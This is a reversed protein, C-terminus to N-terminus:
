GITIAPLPPPPIRLKETPAMVEATGTAVAKGNQNVAVNLATNMSSHILPKSLLHSGDDM